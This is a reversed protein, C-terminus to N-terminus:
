RRVGPVSLRVSGAGVPNLVAAVAAPGHASRRRRAAGGGTRGSFSPQGGGFERPPGSQGPRM